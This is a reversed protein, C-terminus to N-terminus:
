VVLLMMEALWRRSRSVSSSFCACSCSVPLSSRSCTRDEREQWHEPVEHERYGVECQRLRPASCCLERAEEFLVVRQRQNLVACELVVCELTSQSPQLMDKIGFGIPLPTGLARVEVTRLRHM